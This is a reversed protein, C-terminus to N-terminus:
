GRAQTIDTLTISGSYGISMPWNIQAIGFSKIYAIDDTTALGTQVFADMLMSAAPLSFDLAQVPPNLLALLDIAYAHSPDNKDIEADKLKPYAGITILQTIMVDVPVSTYKTITTANLMDVIEQDTKGVYAPLTIETALQQIYDPMTSMRINQVQDHMTQLLETSFQSPDSDFTMISDSGDIDVTASYQGNPQQQVNTVTIM